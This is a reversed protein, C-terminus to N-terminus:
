CVFRECTFGINLALIQIYVDSYEIQQNQILNYFSFFRSFLSMCMNSDLHKYRVSGDVALSLEELSARLKM